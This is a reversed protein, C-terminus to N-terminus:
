IAGLFCWKPDFLKYNEHTISFLQPVYSDGRRLGSQNCTLLKINKLYKFLYNFMIKKLIKSSIPLLSVPRYNKIIQIDGKKDVPINAKKWENPFCGNIVSNNFLIHLLKSILTACLKLM